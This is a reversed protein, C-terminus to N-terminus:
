VSFVGARPGANKPTSTFVISDCWQTHTGTSQRLSTPFDNLTIRTKRTSQREDNCCTTAPETCPVDGLM